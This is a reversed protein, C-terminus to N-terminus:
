CGTLKQCACTTLKERAGPDCLDIPVDTDSGDDPTPVDGDDPRPPVDGDDRCVSEEATRRDGAVMAWPSGRVLAHLVRGDVLWLGVALLKDSYGM